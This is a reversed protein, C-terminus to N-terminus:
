RAVEILHSADRVARSQWILSLMLASLVTVVCWWILQRVLWIGIHAAGLPLASVGLWHLVAYVVPLIASNWMIGLVFAVTVVYVGPKRVAALQTLGPLVFLLYIARYASNQAAFFCAVLLVCGVLLFTTEAETLAHLGPRLRDRRALALAGVLMGALMAILMTLGAQRPLGFLQALGFPLDSAAFVNDDFRNTTPINAIGRMIANGDLSFWVAIVGCVVLIAAVAIALRERVALVLLVIPYFKLMGALLATTYGAARAGRSRRNLAVAVMALVFMLLDVNARELAYAV